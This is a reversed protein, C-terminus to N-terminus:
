GEAARLSIVQPVSKLMNARTAGAAAGNLVL